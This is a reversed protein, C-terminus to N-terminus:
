APRPAMAVQQERDLRRVRLVAQRLGEGDGARQVVEHEVELHQDEVELPHLELRDGALLHVDVDTGSKLNAPGSANTSVSRSSIGNSPKESGGSTWTM